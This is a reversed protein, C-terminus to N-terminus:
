SRPVSEQKLFWYEGGRRLCSPEHNLEGTPQVKLWVFGAWETEKHDLFKSKESNTVRLSLQQLM